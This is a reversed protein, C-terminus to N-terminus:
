LTHAWVFALYLAYEENKFCTLQFVHQYLTQEENKFGVFGFM